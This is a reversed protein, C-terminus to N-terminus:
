RAPAWGYEVDPASEPPPSIGYRVVEFGQQEYFRCAGVNQQHTHLRLGEPSLERAKELLATGIGHRQRDVAIYLRDVYGKAIALFGVLQEDDEALWLDNHTAIVDLFNARDEEETHALETPLFHYTARAVARWLAVTSEFDAPTYPRIRM